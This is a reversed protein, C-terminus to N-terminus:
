PGSPQNDDLEEQPESRPAARGELSVIFHRGIWAVFVKWIETGRAEIM